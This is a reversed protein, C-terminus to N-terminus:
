GPRGLSAVEYSGGSETVLVGHGKGLPPVVEGVLGFVAAENTPTHGVVLARGGEPLSEIVSRLAEGLLRTEAAVLDPDVRRMAELDAGKGATKATDRWRGEVSSRLGPKETIEVDDQGAHRRLIRLMETARNAGTSIFATYPPHLEDRGIAEAAAVGNDTLVDGDNDTHR